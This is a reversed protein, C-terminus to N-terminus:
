KLQLLQAVVAVAILEPEKGTIGPLGIPCQLRAMQKPTFGKAELRHLFRARKTASGILGVWPLDARALAAETLALDLEHSHTLILVLAGVPAHRL